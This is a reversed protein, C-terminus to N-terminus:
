QKERKKRESESMKIAYALWRSDSSFSVGEGFPMVTLVDTDLQRVRLENGENGRTVEYALWRGNPSLMGSRLTEWKGYDEPTVPSPVDTTQSFSQLAVTACFIVTLSLMKSLALIPM